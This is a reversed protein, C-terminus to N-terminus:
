PRRLQFSGPDACTALAILIVLSAALYRVPRRVIRIGARRWFTATREGRPAVWGRPGAVMLIAPLLTVAALFAAGIGIALAPGVTSFVGLRAFGMGLFTIGVTGASAAIVKGISALARKVARGPDEAAASDRRVYDHYRSVFFVAYDTGAGAIMASLLVITQNSVPMGTLASVGSVVAQATVLSAGITILPLLMTVPNRYIVALIVLLLITIALEITVRDHAGADTLDAVTAAPGTM